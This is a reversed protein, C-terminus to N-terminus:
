EVILEATKVGPLRLAAVDAARLGPLRVSEQFLAVGSAVGVARFRLLGDRVVVTFRFEGAAAVTQRAVAPQAADGLTLTLRDTAEPACRASLVRGDRLRLEASWAAGSHRLEGQWSVALALPSEDAALTRGIDGEAGAMLSKVRPARAPLVALVRRQFGYWSGLALTMGGLEDHTAYYDPKTGDFRDILYHRPPEGLRAGGRQVFLGGEGLTVATEDCWAAIDDAHWRRLDEWDGLSAGRGFEGRVAAVLDDRDSFVARTAVLRPPQERGALRRMDEAALARRWIRLDDLDGALSRRAYVDHTGIRLRVATPRRGIVAPIIAARGVEAGDLFLRLTRGDCVGGLHVWVGTSIPGTGYVLLGGGRHSPGQSVTPRGSEDVGLSWMNEGVATTTSGVLFIGGPAIGDLRVWLAASWLEDGAWRLLPSDAIELAAAGNFRAARDIRGFRDTTPVLNSWGTLDLGRGSADRGDGDFNWAGLARTADSPWAPAAENGAFRDWGWWAAAGLGCALVTAAAMTRVRGARKSKAGFPLRGRRVAPPNVLRSAIDGATAPRAVADKALCAAVTEEWAPPVAVREPSLGAAKRRTAIADPKRQFLQVRVDGTHFPPKGALLEYLTAGLAYVDDAPSPDEGMAQQPSMYVLTGASLMSVRTVSDVLSRAVGFDTIKVAGDHTLMVNSPKLDRHVVKAQTHAYDLAACLQPLWPAIDAPELVKNERGLRLETLTRGPVLEMAIAAGGPDDVFDHIRVINPHTLQRARRTEQKLDELAAPDWRVADPLFKLAIDEGLTEDRAQWVIGM